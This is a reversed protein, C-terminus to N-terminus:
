SDTSEKFTFAPQMSSGFSVRSVSPLNVTPLKRIEGSPVLTANVRWGSGNILENALDSTDITSIAVFFIVDTTALALESASSSQDGSLLSIKYVVLRPSLM